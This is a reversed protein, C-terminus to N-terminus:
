FSKDRYIRIKNSNKLADDFDEEWLWFNQFSIGKRLLGEKLMENISNYDDDIDALIIKIDYQYELNEIAHQLDDKSQTLEVGINTIDHKKEFTYYREVLRNNITISLFTVILLAIMIRLIFKTSLRNM